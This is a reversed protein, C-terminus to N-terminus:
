VINSPWYQNKNWLRCHVKYLQTPYMKSASFQRTDTPVIAPVTRPYFNTFHCIKRDSPSRYSKGLLYVHKSFSPTEQKRLNSTVLFIQLWNKYWCDSESVGTNTDGIQVWLLSKSKTFECANMVSTPRFDVQRHCIVKWCPWMRSIRQLM